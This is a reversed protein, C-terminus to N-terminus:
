KSSKLSFKPLLINGIPIFIRFSSYLFECLTTIRKYSGRGLFILILSVNAKSSSILSLTSYWTVVVTVSAITSLVTFSLPGLKLM